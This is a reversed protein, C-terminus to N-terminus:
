QKELPGTGLLHVNYKFEKNFTANLPFDTILAQGSWKEKGVIIIVKILQNNMFAETLTTFAEDNIVYIGSCQINWNKKGTLNRDWEDNIKNTINIAEAQRNLTAGQQGGLPFSNIYLAVNVSQGLNAKQGQAIM